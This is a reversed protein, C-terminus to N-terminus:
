SQKHMVECPLLGYQMTLLMSPYMGHGVLLQVLQAQLVSKHFGIHCEGGLLAFCAYCRCSAQGQDQEQNFAYNHAPLQSLQIPVRM